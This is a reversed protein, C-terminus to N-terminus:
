INLLSLVHECLCRGVGIDTVVHNKDVLFHSCVAHRYSDDSSRMHGIHMRNDVSNIFPM